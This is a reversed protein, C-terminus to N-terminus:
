RDRGVLSKPELQRMRLLEGLNFLQRKVASLSATDIDDIITEGNVAQFVLVTERDSEIEIQELLDTSHTAIIIQVTDSVDRMAELIVSLAAPHLGKEPEDISILSGVNLNDKKYESVIFQCFYLTSLIIVGYITGDSMDKPEFEKKNAFFRTRIYGDINEVTLNYIQNNILKLYDVIKEYKLKNKRFVRYLLSPSSKGTSVIFNGEDFQSFNDISPVPSITQMHQLFVDLEWRLLNPSNDLSSIAFRNKYNVHDLGIKDIKISGSEAKYIVDDEDQSLCEELIAALSADTQELGIKFFFKLTKGNTSRFWITVSFWQNQSLNYLIKRFNGRSDIASGIGNLSKWLVDRTFCLADLFNSKGAGNEGVLVTIPELQVDCFKISKYNELRVRTIRAQSMSRLKVSRARLRRSHRM